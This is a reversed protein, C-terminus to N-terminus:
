KFSNSVFINKDNQYTFLLSVVFGFLSIFFDELHPESQLGELKLKSAPRHDVDDDGDDAAYGGDDDNADDEVGDADAGADDDSM